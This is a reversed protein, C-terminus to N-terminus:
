RTQGLIQGLSQAQPVGAGGGQLQQLILALIAPDLQGGLGPRGARPAPRQPANVLPGLAELPNVPASGGGPTQGSVAQGAVPSAQGPLAPRQPPVPAASPATAGSRPFPFPAQQPAITPPEVGQKALASAAGGPNGLVAQNLLGILIPNIAM